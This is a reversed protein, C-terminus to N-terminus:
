MSISHARDLQSQRVVPRVVGAPLRLRVGLRQLPRKFRRDFFHGAFRDPHQGTSPGIGADVSQPLHHAEGGAALQGGVHQLPRDGVVQRAVHDHQLDDISGIALIM